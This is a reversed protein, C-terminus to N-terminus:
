NLVKITIVAAIFAVVLFGLIIFRVEWDSLDDGGDRSFDNPVRDLIHLKLDTM